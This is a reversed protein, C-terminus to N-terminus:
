SLIRMAMKQLNPADSGYHKWWTVPDFNIDNRSRGLIALKKGFVGSANMYKVLDVLLETKCLLTMIFSNRLILLFPM